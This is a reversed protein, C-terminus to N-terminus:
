RIRPGRVPLFKEPLSKLRASALLESLHYLVGWNRKFEFEEKFLFYFSIASDRRWDLVLATAAVEVRADEEERISHIGV